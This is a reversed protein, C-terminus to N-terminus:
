SRKQNIFRTEINSLDDFSDYDEYFDRSAQQQRSM